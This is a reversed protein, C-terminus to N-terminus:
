YCTPADTYHTHEGDFYWYIGPFREMEQWDPFCKKRQIPIVEKRTQHKHTHVHAPRKNVPPHAPIKDPIMKRPAPTPPLIRNPKGLWAKLNRIYGNVVKEQGFYGAYVAASIGIIGLSNGHMPIICTATELAKVILYSQIANPAALAAALLLPNMGLLFVCGSHGAVLGAGVDVFMCAGAIDSPSLEDGKFTDMIYVWGESFFLTPAITGSPSKDRIPPLKIKSIYGNVITTVIKPLFKALFPPIKASSWGAGLGGFYFDVFNNHPDKLRLLGGEAAILWWGVGGTGSTKFRWKSEGRIGPMRM